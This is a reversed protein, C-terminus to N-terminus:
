EEHGDGKAEVVIPPHATPERSNSGVERVEAVFRYGRKPATEIFQQRKEGLMKRRISSNNARNAEEVVADPWVLKMVEDKELWRGHREVLALLLDFVKPQLPVVEGDRTLLREAADPRYPGFEYIPKLQQSM